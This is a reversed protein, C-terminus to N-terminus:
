VTCQVGSNGKAIEVRGRTPHIGSSPGGGAVVAVFGPVHLLEGLSMSPHVRVADVSLRNEQRHNGTRRAPPIDPLFIGTNEYGVIILLGITNM